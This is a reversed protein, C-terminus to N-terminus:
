HTFVLVLSAYPFLPTSRYEFLLIFNGDSLSLSVLILIAFNRVAEPPLFIDAIM